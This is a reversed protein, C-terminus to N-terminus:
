HRVKLKPFLVESSAEMCFFLVFHLNRIFFIDLLLESFTTFPGDLTVSSNASIM